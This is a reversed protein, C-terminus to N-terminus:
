DLRVLVLNMFNLSDKTKEEIILVNEHGIIILHYIHQM